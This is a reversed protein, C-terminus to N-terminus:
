SGCATVSAWLHPWNVNSPFNTGKEVLIFRKLIAVVEQSLTRRSVPELIKAFNITSM